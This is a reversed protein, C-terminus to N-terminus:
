NTKRESQETASSSVLPFLAKVYIRNVKLKNIRLCRKLKHSKQRVIMM